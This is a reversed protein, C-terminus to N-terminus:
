VNKKYRKKLVKRIFSAPLPLKTSTYCLEEDATIQLNLSISVKNM